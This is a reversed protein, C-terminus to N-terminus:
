SLGSEDKPPDVTMVEDGGRPGRGCVMVSLDPDWMCIKSSVSVRYHYGHCGNLLSPDETQGERPMKLTIPVFAHSHLSPQNQVLNLFSCLRALSDESPSPVM